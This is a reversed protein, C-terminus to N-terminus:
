LNKKGTRTLFQPFHGVGDYRLDDPPVFSKQGTCKKQLNQRPRGLVKSLSPSQHMCLVSAIEARFNPLQYRRDNDDPKNIRKFLIYANVMALDLMHVFLRNTYKNSKVPIRYRGILGDMLDVGGMHGNYEHIINPCDVNVNQSRPTNTASSTSPSLLTAVTGESSTVCIESELMSDSLNVARNLAEDIGEDVPCETECANDDNLEEEMDEEIDTDSDFNMSNLYKRIEEDSLSSLKPMQRHEM